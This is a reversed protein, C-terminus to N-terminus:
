ACINSLQELSTITVKELFSLCEQESRDVMTMRSRYWHLMETAHSARLSMPTICSLEPDNVMIFIKLNKRIEYSKLLKGTRTHMFLSNKEKSNETIGTQKVVLPHIIEIYFDMFPYRQLSASM